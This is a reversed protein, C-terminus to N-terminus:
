SVAKREPRQRYTASDSPSVAERNRIWSPGTFTFRVQAVRTASRAADDKDLRSMAAGAKAPVPAAGGSIAATLAGAITMLLLRFEVVGGGVPESSVLPTVIPAAVPTLPMPWIVMAVLGVEVAKLRHVPVRILGRVTM